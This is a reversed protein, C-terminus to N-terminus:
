RLVCVVAMKKGVYMSKAQKKFKLYISDYLICEQTDQSRKKILITDIPIIWITVHILLENKKNSLLIGNYLYIVIQKDRRINIFM